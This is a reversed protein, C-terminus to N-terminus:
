PIWMLLLTLTLASIITSIFTISSVLDPQNDYQLAYLTMIASAPMAAEVIMVNGLLHDVPLLFYVILAALVPSIILRLILALNLKSWSVREFKIEALQMGLVLMITPIAANGLMDIVKGINVPLPLHFHQWIFAIFLAHIIPMKVVSKIAKRTDYKGRAAYYLGITSMAVTHMVIIAVAYRFGEEGFAFLIVPAGYNGNNMFATSLILASETSIDYKRLRSIVKVIFILLVTLLLSYIAIYLYTTDLKTDYFTQFILAPLMVYLATTSISQIHFKFIRQATFGAAFVLFVPLIIQFFM